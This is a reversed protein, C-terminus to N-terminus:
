SPPKILRELVAIGNYLYVHMLYGHGTTINTLDAAAEHDAPRM